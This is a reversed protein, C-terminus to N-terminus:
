GIRRLVELRQALRRQHVAAFFAQENEVAQRIRRDEVQGFGDPGDGFTLEGVQIAQDALVEAITRIGLEDLHVLEQLAGSRVLDDDEIRPGRVFISGAVDGASERHRNVIELSSQTLERLFFLVDRVAAARIAHVGIARDLNQSRVSPARASQAFAKGLPARSTQGDFYTGRLST